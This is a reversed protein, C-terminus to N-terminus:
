LMLHDSIPTTIIGSAHLGNLNNAFIHDILINVDDGLHTHRTIKPFFSYSIINEDFMNYYNQRNIKLLDINFDEAIYVKKSMTNACSITETFDHIFSKIDDVVDLGEIYKIM